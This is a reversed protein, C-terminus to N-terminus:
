VAPAGEYRHHPEDYEAVVTRPRAYAIPAPPPAPGDLDYVERRRSSVPPPPPPQSAYSHHQPAPAAEYYRNGYQDVVVRRAPAPPPPMAREPAEPELDIYNDRYPMSHRPAARSAARPAPAPAPAPEYYGYGDGSAAYREAATEPPPAYPPGPEEVYRYRPREREPVMYAASAARSHRPADEPIYAPRLSHVRRAEPVPAASARPVVPAPAAAAAPPPSYQVVSGVRTAPQPAYYPRRPEYEGEYPDSYVMERSRYPPEGPVPAPAAAAASPVGVRPSSVDVYAAAAANRLAARRRRPVRVDDIGPVYSPSVPEPKIYVSDPSAPMRPAYYLEQPGPQPEVRQARPQPQTQPQAAAARERERQEQRMLRRRKRSTQQQPPQQPQTPPQEQQPQQQQQQQPQPQQQSQVHTYIPGEAQELPSTRTSRNRLGNKPQGQQGAAYVGAEAEPVVNEHRAQRFESTTLPSVREPRPAHPELIHNQVHVPLYPPHAPQQQQLEVQRELRAREGELAQAHSRGHFMPDLEPEYSEDNVTVPLGPGPPSYEPEYHTGEETEEEADASIQYDPSTVAGTKRTGLVYDIDNRSEDGSVDAVAVDAMDIDATTTTAKAGAAQEEERRSPSREPRDAPDSDPALSSYYSNVDSGESTVKQGESAAIHEEEGGVSMAVAVAQAPAPYPSVVRLAKGLIEAVDFDPNSEHVSVKLRGDAKKQTVQEQILREMHERRSQLKARIVIPSETLFIPDLTPVAKRAASTGPTSVGGQEKSTDQSPLDGAKGGSTQKEAAASVAEKRSQSAKLAEKQRAHAPIKLRPHTGALIQNQIDLIKQYEKLERDSQETTVADSVAAPHQQGLYPPLEAM